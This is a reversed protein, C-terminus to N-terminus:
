KYGWKEMNAINRELQHHMTWKLAECELRNAQHVPIREKIMMAKIKYKNCHGWMAFEYGPYGEMDLGDFVNGFMIDSFIIDTSLSQEDEHGWRNGAYGCQSKEMENFIRIIQDEDLLFSDIGIKIFRFVNNSKLAYYGAKTLDMDGQQHGRNPIWMHRPFDDQKGNYAICHSVKIKKYGRLVSLLPELFDEKDNATIIFNIRMM